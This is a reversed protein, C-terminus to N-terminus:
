YSGGSMPMDPLLEEYRKEYELALWGRNRWGM